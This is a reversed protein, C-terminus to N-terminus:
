SKQSVHIIISERDASDADPLRELYIHHFNSDDFQNYTTLNSLDTNEDSFLGAAIADLIPKSYNDLDLKQYGHTLPHFKMGISITFSCNSDLPLSKSSQIQLAIKRKWEQLRKRGRQTTPTFNAIMGFVTITVSFSSNPFTLIHLFNTDHNFEKFDLNDM